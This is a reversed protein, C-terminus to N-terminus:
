LIKKKFIVGLVWSGQLNIPIQTLHHQNQVKVNYIVVTYIFYLMDLNYNKRINCTGYFLVWNLLKFFWLKSRYTWGFYKINFYYTYLRICPSIPSALKRSYSFGRCALRSMSARTIDILKKATYVITTRVGKLWIWTIVTDAIWM